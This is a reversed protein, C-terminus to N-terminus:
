LRVITKSGNEMQVSLTIPAKETRKGRLIIQAHGMFSEMTMSQKDPSSPREIGKFGPDGNGYGLIDAPGDVTAILRECADPVMRGKKDYLTLDVVVIDQGDTKLTKESCTMGIRVAEGTTEVKETLIKRGNRFGYAVLKGPQYTTTWVIHGDKPM